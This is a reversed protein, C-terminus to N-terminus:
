IKSFIVKSAWEKDEFDGQLRIDAHTEKTSLM